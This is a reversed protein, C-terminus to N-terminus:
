GFKYGFVFIFFICKRNASKTRPKGIFPVGVLQWGGFSIETQRADETEQCRSKQRSEVAEMEEKRREKGM